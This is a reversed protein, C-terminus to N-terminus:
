ECVSVLYCWKVHLFAGRQLPRRMKQSSARPFQGLINGDCWVAPSQQTNGQLSVRMRASNFRQGSANGESFRVKQIVPLDNRIDMRTAAFNMRHEMSACSGTEIELQFVHPRHLDVGAPTCKSKFIHVPNHRCSFEAEPRAVTTEAMLATGTFSVPFKANPLYALGRRCLPHWCNFHSKRFLNFRVKWPPPEM